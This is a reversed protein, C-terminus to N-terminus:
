VFQRVKGTYCPENANQPALNVPLKSHDIFAGNLCLNWHLLLDIAQFHKNSDFRLSALISETIRDVRNGFSVSAVM